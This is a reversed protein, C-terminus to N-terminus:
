GKGFAEQGVSPLTFSYGVMDYHCDKCIFPVSANGPINTCSECVLNGFTKSFLTPAFVGPSSILVFSAIKGVYTEFEFAFVIWVIVMLSFILLVLTM